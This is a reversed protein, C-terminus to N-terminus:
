KSRKSYERFMALFTPDSPGNQLRAVKENHSLTKTDEELWTRYLKMMANYLHETRMDKIQLWGMHSSKYWQTPDFPSLNFTKAVAAIQDATGEVVLGNALTVKMLNSVHRIENKRAWWVKDGTANDWTARVTDTSVKVIKGRAGVTIFQNDSPGLYEVIDGIAYPKMANGLKDATTMTSEKVKEIDSVNAYWKGSGVGNEWNAFITSGHVSIVTGVDDYKVPFSNIGIFRVRDGAKFENMNDLEKETLYFKGGSTLPNLRYLHEMGLTSEIVLCIGSKTHVTSGLRYKRDYVSRLQTVSSTIPTEISDWKVKVLDGNISVVTGFLKTLMGKVRDGIKFM